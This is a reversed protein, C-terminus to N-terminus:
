LRNEALDGIHGIGAAGGAERENLGLVLAEGIGLGEAAQATREDEIGFWDSRFVSSMVLAIGFSPLDVSALLRAMVMAAEPARTSRMSPSRAAAVDRRHEVHISFDAEGVHEAAFGFPAGGHL